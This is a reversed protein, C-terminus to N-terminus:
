EVRSFQIAVDASMGPGVVLTGKANGSNESFTGNINGYETNIITKGNVCIGTVQKTSHSPCLLSGSEKDASVDATFHGSSDLASITGTGRYVCEGLFWNTATGTGIWRGALYDCGAATNAHFTFDAQAINAFALSLLIVGKVLNLKM